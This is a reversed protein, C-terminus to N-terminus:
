FYDSDSNHESSSEFGVYTDGYPGWAGDFDDESDTDNESDTAMESFHYSRGVFAKPWNAKMWEEEEVYDRNGFELYYLEVEELGKLDKLLDLGNELTMALCDFQLINNMNGTSLTGPFGLSLKRLKTFKALKAYIQRQLDMSEQPTGSKVRENAPQGDIKRTIDPRPINGIECGFVELNSCVWDSKAVENADLAGGRGVTGDGHFCFEKLNPLSCLLRNIPKGGSVYDGELRFVELTDAHKILASSATDFEFCGWSKDRLCYIVKKLGATCRDLLAILDDEDGNIVGDIWLSTLLPFTPPCMELFYDMYLTDTVLRLTQIFAGNRKLGGNLAAMYAASRSRCEQLPDEVHRWLLPTFAKNWAQSVRVSAALEHRDLLSMIMAQIEPPFDVLSTKDM